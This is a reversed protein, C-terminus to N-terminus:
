PTFTWRKPIYKKSPHPFPVIIDNKAEIEELIANERTDIENLCRVMLADAEVTIGQLDALNNCSEAKDRLEEFKEVYKNSFEQKCNKGDLHEFVRTRAEDIAARVPQTREDLLVSYALHYDDILGPLKHINNYPKEARIIDRIQKATSEINADVIYTKGADFNALVTLAKDFIKVQEGEFFKKIPEYDEAFNCWYKSHRHFFLPWFDNNEM